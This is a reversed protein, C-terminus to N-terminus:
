LLSLMREIEEPSVYFHPSTRVWGQRPAAIVRHERLRRVLARADVGEKRFSVIGSSTEATRPGLVEYGRRTVGEAIQDARALVEGAIGEV